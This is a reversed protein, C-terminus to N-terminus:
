SASSSAILKSTGFFPNRGIFHFCHSLSNATEFTTMDKIPISVEGRQQHRMPPMNSNESFSNDYKTNDDDSEKYVLPM